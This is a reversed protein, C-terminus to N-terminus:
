KVLRELDGALKKINASIEKVGNDAYKHKVSQTVPDRYNPGMQYRALVNNVARNIDNTFMDTLIERIKISM